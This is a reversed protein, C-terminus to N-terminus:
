NTTPHTATHPTHPPQSLLLLLLLGQWWSLICIPHTTSTSSCPTHSPQALLLLLGRMGNCAANVSPGHRSVEILLVPRDLLIQPCCCCCCPCIAICCCSPHKSTNTTPALPAALLLLKPLLLLLLLLHWHALSAGCAGHPGRRQTNVRGLDSIPWTHRWSICCPQSPIPRTVQLLLRLLLTKIRRPLAPPQGCRSVSLLLLLLLL